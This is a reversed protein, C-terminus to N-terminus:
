ESLESRFPYEWSGESKLTAALFQYVEKDYALNQSANGHVTRHGDVSPDVLNSPDNIDIGLSALLRRSAGAYGGESAPAVGGVGTGSDGQRQPV